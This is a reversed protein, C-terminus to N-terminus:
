VREEVLLDVAGDVEGDAVAEGEEAARVDARDVPVDDLVDAASALEVEVPLQDLPAAVPQECISGRLVRFRIFAITIPHPRTPEDIASWSSWSPQSTVATSSFSSARPRSPSWQAPPKMTPWPISVSTRRAAPISSASATTP